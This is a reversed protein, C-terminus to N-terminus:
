CRPVTDSSASPRAKLVYRTAFLGPWGFLLALPMYTAAPRVDVVEFGADRFLGAATKKTFFRLHTKDLIGTETYEFRGFLLQFRVRFNAVNPLSAIIIGAEALLPAVKRLLSAPDAIHELVDAFVVVDYPGSLERLLEPDEASGTYVRDLKSKARGAAEPDMEVGDVANGLGKLYGGLNGTDCGVDLIRRGRGSWRIIWSYVSRKNGEDVQFDYKLSM